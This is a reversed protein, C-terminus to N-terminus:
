DHPLCLASVSLLRQKNTNYLGERKTFDAAPHYAEHRGNPGKFEPMHMRDSKHMSLRLDDSPFVIKRYLIALERNPSYLVTYLNNSFVTIM